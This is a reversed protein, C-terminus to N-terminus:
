EGDVPNLPTLALRKLYESLVGFANDLLTYEKAKGLVRIGQLQLVLFAALAEPQVSLSLEGQSQSHTLVQTFTSQLQAFRRQCEQQVCDDDLCKEMLANQMFCGYKQERQLAVFRALYTLIDVLGAQPHLLQEQTGFSFHDLYFRLCERYLSQKDGFSNYLSFRNIGLHEVLDAISTEAFGKRWFLEMALILKEQRDFNCSRAM